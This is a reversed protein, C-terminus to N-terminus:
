KKSVVKYNTPSTRRPSDAAPKVRRETKPQNKAEEIEEENNSIALDVNFKLKEKIAERKKVDNLPLTVAFHKVMDLVGPPAFDLCDLFADLSGNKLLDIVQDENMWYEPEPQIGIEDLVEEELVLLYDEIIKRGGPIYMLGELEKSDIQKPEGPLFERRLNMDPIKYVVTSNSRNKVTVKM